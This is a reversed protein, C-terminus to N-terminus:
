SNAPVRSSEMPSRWPPHTPHRPWYPFTSANQVPQTMARGVLELGLVEVEHLPACVRWTLRNSRDHGGGDAHGVAAASRDDETDYVVSCAAGAGDQADGGFHRHIVELQGDVVSRVGRERRDEFLEQYGFSGSAEDDHVNM